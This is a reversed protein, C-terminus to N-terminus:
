TDLSDFFEDVRSVLEESDFPKVIYENAGRRLVDKEVAATGFATILIIHVDFRQARLQDILQLGNMRPMNMDVIILRCPQQRFKELADQGDCAEVVDYGRSMLYFRCLRRIAADDDVVMVMPVVSSGGREVPHRSDVYGGGWGM